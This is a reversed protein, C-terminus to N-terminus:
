YGYYHGYSTVRIWLATPMSDLNFASYTVRTMTHLQQNQAGWTYKTILIAPAEQQEPLIFGFQNGQECLQAYGHFIRHNAFSQNLLNTLALSDVMAPLPTCIYVNALNKVQLEPPDAVEIQVIQGDSFKSLASHAYVQGFWAFCGQYVPRYAYKPYKVNKSWPVEPQDLYRLIAPQNEPNWFNALIGAPGIWSVTKEWNDNNDDDVTYGVEDGENPLYNAFLRTAPEIPIQEDSLEPLLYGYRTDPDYSMITGVSYGDNPALTTYHSSQLSMNSGILQPRCNRRRQNTIVILPERTTLM